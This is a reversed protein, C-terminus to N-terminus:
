VAVIWNKNTAIAKEEDTLMDVVNQHFRIYLSNGARKRNALHNLVNVASEHTLKDKNRLFTHAGSLTWDSYGSENIKQCGLNVFGALNKLNDSGYFAYNCDTISSCDILGVTELNTCEGFPAAYGILNGEEDYVTEYSINTVKSINMNPIEKLSACGNFVRKIKETNSFDLDPLVELSACGNFMDTANTVNSTNLGNVTTLSVCGQFMGTANVLSPTDTTTVKTLFKNDKFLNTANNLKKTNFIEITKTEALDSADPYPDRTPCETCKVSSINNNLLDTGNVINDFDYIVDDTYARVRFGEYVVMTGKIIMPQINDIADAYTSLGGSVTVGKEEIAAKMDAKCDILTQLNDAITM